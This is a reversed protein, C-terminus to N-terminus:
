AAIKTLNKNNDREADRIEKWQDPLLEHMRGHPHSMLRRFIDELYEHPNIKMNRCTQVFSYLMAMSNGAKESGVFMWNKKGIVIKRMEREASNNDMCINPDDLYYKFNKEHNLIYGVAKTLNYKPLLTGTAVKKKVFSFLKDVMPKEYKQRIILRKETNCKWAIREFRYLNSIKKIVADRFVTDGATAETFKRRAHAWCAAWIIEALPNKDLSIYAGYADAHIAGKFSKLFDKSHKYKRDTTFEFVEYPPANPKAVKYVWMRVEKTKGGGRSQMRLPTDDTFLYNFSLVQSKMLEYLPKIKEGINIFLSSLQQRSIEVGIYALKEQQRYFPMHFCLKEVVVHAMFSEDFKSKQIISDPAPAQVVGALSNSPAVYKITIIRKVYSSGPKHALKNVVERDIEVLIEGTKPDIRKDKPIDNIIEVVPIDDPLKLTDELTSKRKRREGKKNKPKEPEADEENLLAIIEELGPLLPNGDGIELLRESKSGFVQKKLWNLQEKLTVITHAQSEIQHQKEKCLDELQEM